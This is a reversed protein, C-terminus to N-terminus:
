HRFYSFVAPELVAPFMALKVAFSVLDVCEGSGPDTRFTAAKLDSRRGSHFRFSQGAQNRFWHGAEDSYATPRVEGETWAIRLSQLFSEIDPAKTSPAGQHAIDALRQQGARIDRLLKVPDLPESMRVLRDRVEM